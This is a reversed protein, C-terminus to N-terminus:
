HFVHKVTDRSQSFNINIAAQKIKEKDPWHTLSSSSQRLNQHLSQSHNTFYWDISSALRSGNNLELASTSPDNRSRNSSMLLLNETNSCDTLVGEDLSARRKRNLDTSTIADNGNSLQPKTCLLLKHPRQLYFICTKIFDKDLWMALIKASIETENLRM